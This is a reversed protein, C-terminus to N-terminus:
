GIPARMPGNAPPTVFGPAAREQPFNFYKESDKIMRMRQLAAQEADRQLLAAGNVPDMYKMNPALQKRAEEVAKAFETQMMRERGADIQAQKYSGVQAMHGQLGIRAVDLQTANHAAAEAARQQLGANGLGLRAQDELARRAIEENMQTQRDQAIGMMGRERMAAVQQERNVANNKALSQLGAEAGVGAARGVSGPTAAMTAGMQALAMWKNQQRDAGMEALMKKYDVLGEPIATGQPIKAREAAIDGYQIPTPTYAAPAAAARIGGAGPQAIKIQPTDSPRALLPPIGKKAPMEGVHYVPPGVGPRGQSPYSAAPTTTVADADPRGEELGTIGMAGPRPKRLWDGFMALYNTGGEPTIYSPESPPEPMRPAGAYADTLYTPGLPAWDAYDEPRRGGALGPVMGGEAMGVPRQQMPAQPMQQMPSQGMTQPPPMQPQQALSSLGGAQQMMDDKVTTKPPGGEGAFGAARKKRAQLEAMVAYAPLAGDGSQLAQILQQESLKPLIALAQIQNQM